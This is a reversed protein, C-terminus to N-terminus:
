EAALPLGEDMADGMAMVLRAVLYQVTPLSHSPSDFAADLYLSRCIEIQVAHIHHRPQGHRELTYGGAYPHNRAVAFGAQRAESVVREVIRHDASRGFLDGVVIAPPPGTMRSQRIPPMSHLDVLIAHGFHRRRRALADAIAIHWPSHHQAVRHAVDEASLPARWIAGHPHIRTPVLGLGGRAKASELCKEDKTLAKGPGHTDFATREMEHEFRNMDIWARATQAVLVEHGHQAAINPLLDAHRDELMRLQRADLRALVEMAVPYDRGAHPVTIVIPSSPPSERADDASGNM